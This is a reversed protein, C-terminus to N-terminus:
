LRAHAAPYSLSTHTIVFFGLIAGERGFKDKM